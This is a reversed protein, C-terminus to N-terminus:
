ELAETTIDIEFLDPKLETKNITKIIHVRNYAFIKTKAKLNMVAENWSKFLWNFGHSNIRFNFWKLWYALHVAPILYDNNPQALNNGNFIGDYCVLFVKSDNQELAHATQVSNRTLLPLPLANIEITTTKDDTVYGSNVIGNQSHFVPLFTYDKNDIDQFKLLFSTGQSFKRLPRKSDRICM